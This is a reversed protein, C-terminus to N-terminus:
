SSLSLSLSRPRTLRSWLCCCLLLNGPKYTHVKIEDAGGKKIYVDVTGSELLYFTDGIDGQKIVNEGAPVSLPGSFARVIMDKQEAELTRLLTSKSVVSLLKATVEPSKPINTVQSMQSKLKNPDMSEASVSVRRNGSKGKPQAVVVPIDAVDDDNEEEDSDVPESKAPQKFLSPTIGKTDPKSEAKSSFPSFRFSYLCSVSSICLLPKSLDHKAIYLILHLKQKIQINNIFFNL